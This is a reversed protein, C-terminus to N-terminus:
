GRQLSVYGRKLRIREDVLLRLRKMVGTRNPRASAEGPQAANQLSTSSNSTSFRRKVSSSFPLTTVFDNYEDANPIPVIFGPYSLGIM